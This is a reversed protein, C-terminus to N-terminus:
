IESISPDFIWFYDGKRQAHVIFLCDNPNEPLNDGKIELIACVGSIENTKNSISWSVVPKIQLKNFYLWNLVKDAIYAADETNLTEYEIFEEGTKFITQVTAITDNEDDFCEENTTWFYTALGEFYEKKIEDIVIDQMLIKDKRKSIDMERIKDKLTEVMSDRVYDRSTRDNLINIENKMTQKEKM